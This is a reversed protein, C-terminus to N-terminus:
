CEDRWSVVGVLLAKAARVVVEGEEGAGRVLQHVGAPSVWYLTVRLFYIM